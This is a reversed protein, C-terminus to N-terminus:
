WIRTKVQFGDLYPVDDGSKYRTSSWKEERLFKIVTGHTIVLVNGPIERIYGYVDLVRKHFQEPTEETGPIDGYITTDVNLSGLKKEFQFESLRVDVYTPRNNNLLRATERCCLYPSTVIFDYEGYELDSSRTPRMPPDLFKHSSPRAHRIFTIIQMYPSKFTHIEM